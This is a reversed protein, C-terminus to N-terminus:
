HKKHTQRDAMTESHPGHQGSGVSAKFGLSGGADTEM